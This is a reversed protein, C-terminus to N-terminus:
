RRAGVVRGRSAAHHSKVVDVLPKANVAASQGAVSPANAGVAGDPKVGAANGPQRMAQFFGAPGAAAAAAAEEPAAALLEIADAASMDTKKLALHMALQPRKKGADSTIIANCRAAFATADFATAAPAAAPAPAPAAAAVPAPAPAAAPAPAPAAAAPAPAPAAAAANGGRLMSAFGDVIADCEAETLSPVAAAAPANRSMDAGTQTQARATRTSRTSRGKRIISLVEDFSKVGDALGQDVAAPGAYVRAETARVADESLGRAKAVYTVFQSYIRDVGEAMDARATHSLQQYPNGDAKHSGAHIITTDLGVSDLMRQMSTHITIVGISGAQGNRTVYLDRASAAIAYAASCAQNQAVAFVPKKKDLAAIEDCLDFLGSVMGGPSDIDLLVAKISADLEIRRFQECLGEYTTAFGYLDGLWPGRDILMGGVPVIAIHDDTVRYRSRGAETGVFRNAGPMSISGGPLDFSRADIAAKLNQAAAPLMALASNIFKTGLWYSVGQGQALAGREPQIINAM